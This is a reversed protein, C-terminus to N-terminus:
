EVADITLSYTQPVGELDVRIALVAVNPVERAIREMTARQAREYSAGGHKVEALYHRLLPGRGGADPTRRHVAFHVDWRWRDEIAPPIRPADDPDVVVRFADPALDLDRAVYAVIPPPDYRYAAFLAEALAGVQQATAAFEWGGSAPGRDAPAPDPDRLKVLYADVDTPDNPAPAQFRLGPRDPDLLDTEAARRSDYTVHEGRQERLEAVTASAECAADTLAVTFPAEDPDPDSQEGHDTPTGPWQDRWGM